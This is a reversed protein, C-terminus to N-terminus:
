NIKWLMFTRFTFRLAREKQTQARNAQESNIDQLIMAKLMRRGIEHRSLNNEWEAQREITNANEGEDSEVCNGELRAFKAVIHQHFKM